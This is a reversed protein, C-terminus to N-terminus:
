ESDKRRSVLFWFSKYYPFDSPEPGGGLGAARFLINSPDYIQYYNHVFARKLQNLVCKVFLFQNKLLGQNARIFLVPSAQNSLCSDSEAIAM